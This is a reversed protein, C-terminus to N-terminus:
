DRQRQYSHNIKWRDNEFLTGNAGSTLGILDIIVFSSYKTEPAFGLITSMSIAFGDTSGQSVTKVVIGFLVMSIATNLMAAFIYRQLKAYYLWDFGATGAM